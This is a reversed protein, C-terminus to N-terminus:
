RKGLFAGPAPPPQAVIKGYENTVTPPDPNPKIAIGASYTPAKNSNPVVKVNPSIDIFIPSAKVNTPSANIGNPGINILTPDITLLEPQIQVGIADIQFIRPSIQILLPNINVGQEAFTILCPAVNFLQENVAVGTQTVSATFPANQIYNPTGINILRAANPSVAAITANLQANLLKADNILTQIATPTTTLFNLFNNYETTLNNTLGAVTSQLDIMSSSLAVQPSDVGHMQQLMKHQSDM